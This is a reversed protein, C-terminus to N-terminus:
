TVVKELYDDVLRDQDDSSIKSKIIAEAKTLAEELIEAQLQKKAQKFEHEIHRKAQEELKTATSEAAKIIREKAEHGQKVYEQILKEAEGDLQELKQNYEALQKEAEKKRGELTELEDKIGTIRASLAQSLPKKLIFFLAIALVAFNMVRYTDEKVWGKPAADGHGSDSSALLPGANVVFLVALILVLQLAVGIVHRRRNHKLPKM